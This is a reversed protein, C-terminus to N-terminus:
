GDVRLVGLAQRLPQARAGVHEFEANRRGAVSSPTFEYVHKLQAAFDATCGIAVLKKASCRICRHALQLLRLRQRALSKSVCMLYTYRYRTERKSFHLGIILKSQNGVSM